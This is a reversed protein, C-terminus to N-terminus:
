TLIIDQCSDLEEQTPTRTNISINTGVAFMSISIVDEEGENSIYMPGAFPNDQVTIGYARLQHPNILSATVTDPMWLAENVVLIYTSGTREDTWAMAGSVIPITKVSEYVESYPIVDCERETYHLIIFNPGLVCTDAHTDMELTSDVLERPITNSLVNSRSVRRRLSSVVPSTSRCKKPEGRFVRRIVARWVPM